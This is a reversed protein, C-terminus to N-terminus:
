PSGEVFQRIWAQGGMEFRGLINALLPIHLRANARIRGPGLRDRIEILEPRLEKTKEKLWSIRREWFAPISREDKRTVFSM